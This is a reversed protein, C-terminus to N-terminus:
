VLAGYPLFAVTEGQAVRTVDEPLEVLGSTQTLSTIVGAGERPHKRAVLGGAGDPALTCRVYERRGAKKAYAFGARVPFSTPPRWAEGALRAVLPRALMAFTVFVAAPNGPLGIFAKGDVVGLAVPRGPKIGVRWFTLAGTAEVAAKVHDEEGTSVGGSTVLMDVDAAAAALAASVAERRDPLIGLDRVACGARRALALLMFRNADYLRAPGLAEGPVVLEDGTSFVGVRLPARVAVDAIGLGALLALDRPGIRRGAPLALAGAEIDEGAPRANAGPKLGPPLVVDGEERVADEQMFVTDFGDPMAAGTFIRLATGRSVGAGGAGPTAGAPLRGAVPLRTEGGPALDAHRVAWGDVAANFFPPLPIPASVDDALVRGDAEALSVREVRAVPSLRAAMLARAEDVRMLAGGFAFCDNSLQAM